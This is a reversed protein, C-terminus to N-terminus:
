FVQPEWLEDDLPCTNRTILWRLICHTHYCHGCTGWTLPCEGKIVDDNLKKIMNIRNLRLQDDESLTTVLEPYSDYYSLDNHHKAIIGKIIDSTSTSLSSPISLGLSSSQALPSFYTMIIDILVLPLPTCTLMCMSMNNMMTTWEEEEKMKKEEKSPGEIATATAAPSSSSSPPSSTVSVLPDKKDSGVGDNSNPMEPPTKIDTQNFDAECLLCPVM